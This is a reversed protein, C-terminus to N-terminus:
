SRDNTKKKQIYEMSKVYDNRYKNAMNMVFNEELQEYKKHTILMALIWKETRNKSGKKIKDLYFYLLEERARTFAELSSPQYKIFEEYVLWPEQRLRKKVKHIHKQYLYERCSACVDMGNSLRYTQIYETMWKGCYECRNYGHQKMYMNKKYNQIQLKKGLERLTDNKIHSVRREIDAIIHSEIPLLDFNIPEVKKLTMDLASNSNTDEKVFSNKHMLIHIDSIINEQYYDNIARILQPKRMTLEQMWMSNFAIVTIIPPSITQIKTHEGISPGVIDGWHSRLSQIKLTSILPLESFSHQLYDHISEMRAMFREGKVFWM